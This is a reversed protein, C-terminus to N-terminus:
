PLEAAIDAAEARRDGELAIVARLERRAADIDGNRIFAKALFFHADELYPSEGLRTVERLREIADSRRDLELYCIGLFFRAATSASDTRVAEELEPIAGAYDQRRYRDMAALFVRRSESASRLRVPTFPPPEIAGLRNFDATRPAPALGIDHGAASPQSTPATVPRQEVVQVALVVVAAAALGAAAQWLRRRSRMAVTTPTGADALASRASELQEVHALCRPCDFYHDEFRACADEDLRGLVYQEAIDDREIEDCTV